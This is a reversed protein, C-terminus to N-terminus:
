RADAREDLGKEAASSKRPPPTPRQAGDTAGHEEGRALDPLADHLTERALGVAGLRRRWGSQSRTQAWVLASGQPDADIVVVTKGGKALEGAMHTALTTKGVGGKQNLLAVIMPSDGRAQPFAHRMSEAGRHCTAGTTWQIPM